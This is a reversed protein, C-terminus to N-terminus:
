GVSLNACKLNEKLIKKIKLFKKGDNRGQRYITCIENFIYQSKVKDTKARNIKKLLNDARKYFDTEM